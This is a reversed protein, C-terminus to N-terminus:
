VVQQIQVHWVNFPVNPANTEQSTTFTYLHAVWFALITKTTVEIHCQVSEWVNDLLNMRICEQNTACDCANEWQITPMTDQQVVVWVVGIKILNSFNICILVTWLVDKQLQTQMHTQTVIEIAVPLKIKPSTVMLVHRFVYDQLKTQSIRGGVNPFVIFIKPAELLVLPVNVWVFIPHIKLSLIMQFLLVNLCANNPLTIRMFDMPVDSLVYTIGM